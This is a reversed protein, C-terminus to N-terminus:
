IVAANDKLLTTWYEQLTKGLDLAKNGFLEGPWDHLHLQKVQNLEGDGKIAYLSPLYSTAAIDWALPAKGKATASLWVDILNEPSKLSSILIM